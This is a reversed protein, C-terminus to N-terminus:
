VLHSEVGVVTSSSRRVVNIFSQVAGCFRVTRPNDNPRMAQVRQMLHLRNRCIDCTAHDTLIHTQRHTPSRHSFAHISRSATQSSVWTPGLFWTSSLPWSRVFGNAEALPSLAAIRGRALNSQALRTKTMMDSLCMRNTTLFGLTQYVM